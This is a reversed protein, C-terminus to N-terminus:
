PKISSFVDKIKEMNESPVEYYKNEAYKAFLRLYDGKIPQSFAYRIYHKKESQEFYIVFNDGNEFTITTKYNTKINDPVNKTITLPTNLLEKSLLVLVDQNRVVDSKLIRGFRLDLANNMVWHRWNTDLNIIDVEVLWVQFRNKFKLFAGKGGRGIAEDYNGIDFQIINKNTRDALTITTANEADLGFRPLYEARASKKEVYKANAISALLNIIRRQYLPYEEYGKAYWLGEKKYLQLIKGSKELRINEINNIQQQWNPFLLQNESYQTYNMNVLAVILGTLFLAISVISIFILNKNLCFRKSSCYKTKTRHSLWWGLTISILLIPLLYLNFFIAIAKKQKINKNINTQLDSLERVKQNLSKRFDAIIALEDDSFDQREEFDKKRWLDNLKIKIDSIQNLIEREKEALYHSNQKRLKEWWIFKRSFYNSKRLSILDNKQSLADLANLILNINDNLAVSYQLEDIIKNQMWFDDYILDSDNIVIIEFPSKKNKSIIRAAITKVIGDAEFQALIDSPNMNEYVALSPMLASNSSSKLLPIFESNHNKIPSIPTVSTVLISRLNETIPDNKNIGKDAILFQIVDQAFSAGGKKRTNVTISNDLDAIVVQPNFTFGWFKDLGKLDSPTFRQNVPAYLRQAEAALDALLLIKGGNNSYKKIGSVIEDSMNQPHILLLVDINKFDNESSIVNIDYLKKIEDIVIWQSGVKNEEMTLGFLPLSSIIGLTPKQNSLSYISQAIDMGIKNINELPIFPIVIKKGAEDVISIGFFANQNIDPLPLPKIGDHIALDEDKNLFEPYYFKYSLKDKAIKKYSKMLSQIHEIAKRFLPNRQSLVKSYYIKITIPEKIKHLINKTDDTVTYIQEETVDLQVNTLLNNILLNFGAFGLWALVVMYVYMIKSNCKILSSNDTTKVNIILGTIFNFLCIVSVFFLINKVRFLGSCLDAFNYLFSLSAINEVLEYPLISRFFGLVYEIGSLFFLLNIIVSLVLAIVQNQTLASMTQAVALMAGSLLWSGLYAAVIVNNDPFGLVNVTIVFPFSLLLALSCFIWAAFFKGWVLQSTRIPLTVIQIITKSKFEEAWLRMAIGSIFILYIWPQYAFMIDLSAEGRAFFDGLYLTFSANLFLFALLYVLALPSTFYRLLENKIVSLLKYM